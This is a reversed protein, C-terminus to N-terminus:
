WNCHGTAGIDLLASTASNLPVSSSIMGYRRSASATSVCVAQRVRLAMSAAGASFAMASPRPPGTLTFTPAQASRPMGTMKAGPRLEPATASNVTPMIRACLREM